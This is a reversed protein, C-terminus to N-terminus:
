ILILTIVSELELDDVSHPEFDTVRDTDNPDIDLNELIAEAKERAEEEAEDEDDSNSRITITGRLTYSFTYENQTKVTETQQITTDTSM